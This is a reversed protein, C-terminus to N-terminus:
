ASIRCAGLQCIQPLRTSSSAQGGGDRRAMRTSTWVFASRDVVAIGVLGEGLDVGAVRTEGALGAIVGQATVAEQAYVRRIATRLDREGFLELRVEAGFLLRLDDIALPDVSARWTGVNLVGDVIRLPMVGHQELWDASVVHTLREVDLLETAGHTAETVAHM